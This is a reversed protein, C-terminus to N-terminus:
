NMRRRRWIIAAIITTAVLATGALAISFGPSSEEETPEDISKFTINAGIGSVSNLTIETDEKGNNDTDIKKTESTNLTLTTSGITLVANNTGVSTVTISLNGKGGTLNIRAGEYLTRSVGDKTSSVSLVVPNINFYITRNSFLGINDELILTVTHNGIKPTTLTYAFSSGTINLTYNTNDVRLTAKRIGNSTNFRGAIVVNQGLDAAAPTANFETIEPAGPLNIELNRTLTTMNGWLNVITINVDYSGATLNTLTYNFEGESTIYAKIEDSLTLVSLTSNIGGESTINARVTINTGVIAVNPEVIFDKIDPAHPFVTFSVNVTGMTNNNDVVTLNVWHVGVSPKVITYTYEGAHIGADTKVGGDVVLTSATLNIGFTTAIKASFTVDEGYLVNEPSVGYEYIRLERPQCALINLSYSAPSYGPKMAQISVTYISINEDSYSIRQSFTATGAASSNYTEAGSSISAGEVPNGSDDVVTASFSIMTGATGTPQVDSTLFLNLPVDFLQTSGLISAHGDKSVGVYFSGKVTSSLDAWVKNWAADRVQAKYNAKITSTAAGSINTTNSSGSFYHIVVGYDKFYGEVDAGSVPSNTENLVTVEFNTTNRAGFPQMVPSAVTFQPAVIKMTRGVVVQSSFTTNGVIKWYYQSMDPSVYFGAKAGPIFYLGVVSDALALKNVTISFNAVGNVVELGRMNDTDVFTWWDNLLGSWNAYAGGLAEIESDNMLDSVFLGSVVNVSKDAQTEISAFAYDDGTNYMYAPANLLSATDGLSPEGIMFATTGNYPNGDYDFIHVTGEVDSSTVPDVFRISNYSIWGGYINKPDTPVRYVLTASDSVSTLNYKDAFTISVASTATLTNNFTVNLVAYGTANTLIYNAPSSLIDPNSYKVSINRNSLPQANQDSVLITISGTNSITNYAVSSIDTIKIYEWGSPAENYLVVYTNFTNTDGEAYGEKTASVALRVEGHKNRLLSFDQATATYTMTAIGESNTTANEPNISGYAMLGTDVFAEAGSVPNGYADKVKVTVTSTEGPKLFVQSLSAEVCLINPLAAVAHYQKRVVYNVNNKSCTITLLGYMDTATTVNFTFEGSPDTSGSTPNLTINTQDNSEISLSVGSVPFGSNNIIKVKAQVAVGTKVNDPFVITATYDTGATQQTVPAHRSLRALSYGNFLEGMFPIWGQWRVNTTYTNVRYYLVNVPLADAIVGQAWKTYLIQEDRDFTSTAKEQLWQVKDALAQTEADAMTSVGGVDKYFPNENTTSWFGFTNQLAKPGLIDFVNGIPDASLSWGLCLMDYDFGNMRAVLANFDIAKAVADIGLLRLNKAIMEGAKVRVPDYDAPPTLITIKPVPVGNPDTLATGIGTYGGQQLEQRAADINFAYKNVSGNYWDAWFPPLCSDGAQGYGGMYRQVITNKDICYSVAKRFHIDGMPMRKMNFALYFYGNDAIFHVDTSPNKNLRPVYTSTLAWPLTDVAGSELALIATDISSYIKYYIRTINEPYIKYGGPTVFNKGWYDENRVMERYVNTQGGNYKFPGTGIVALPDNWQTDTINGPKLHSEWIHKPIIPVSLTTLFFQGYPKALTFNIHTADVKVVSQNIEEESVSGDNDWDFANIISSSVTVGTRLVKYSFVVDDATVPTGDTFNVGSRLTVTTTNQANIETWSEALLPFINGAPDLGSLGELTWGLVYSKWVSNSGLDFMNFNPMDQQLAVYLTTEDQAEAKSHGATFVSFMQLLM